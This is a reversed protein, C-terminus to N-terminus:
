QTGLYQRILDPLEASFKSRPLVADCGAESAAALAAKDVHSGFAIFRTGPRAAQRYGLLAAPSVLDGAALDVFVAKPQWEGIVSAALAANGAVTVRYGLAGATGTVKSTFILDRSLLLGAPGGGAPSPAPETPSSTLDNM